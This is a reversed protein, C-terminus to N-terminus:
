RLAEKMALNLKSLAKQVPTQAEPNALALKKKTQIEQKALAAALDNLSNTINLVIGNANTPPTPTLCYGTATTLALSVENLISPSMLPKVKQMTKVVPILGECAALNKGQVTSLNSPTSSTTATTTSTTTKVPTTACATLSLALATVLLSKKLM